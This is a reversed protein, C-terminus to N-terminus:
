FVRISSTRRNNCLYTYRTWFNEKCREFRECNWCSFLSFINSTRHHFVYILNILFLFHNVPHYFIIEMRESITMYARSKKYRTGSRIFDNGKDRVKVALYREDMIYPDPEWETDNSNRRLHGPFGKEFPTIRPIEGSVSNCM